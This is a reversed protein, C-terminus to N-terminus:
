EMTGKVLSRLYTIEDKTGEIYYTLYESPVEMNKVTDPAIQIMIQNTDEFTTIELTKELDTSNNLAASAKYLFYTYQPEYNEKGQKSKGQFDEDEDEYENEMESWQDRFQTKENFMALIEKDEITKILKHEKEDYVEVQALRQLNHTGENNKGSMKM